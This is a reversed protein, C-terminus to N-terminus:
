TYWVFTSSLQWKYQYLHCNELVTTQYSQEDIIQESSYEITRYCITWLIGLQGTSFQGSSVSNDPESNDLPYRTTRYWITGLIGLQGTDLQKSYISNDPELSDQCGISCTM